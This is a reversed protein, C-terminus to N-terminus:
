PAPRSSEILRSACGLPDEDDALWHCAPEARLWTFQRKALQRTAVIGRHLMEDFSYEGLLYKLVQRYGVCRMSPLDASLDGRRWLAQVEGILGQEVMARFRQEIRAHLTQRDQPARVLKLLRYPLAEGQGQARGILASM